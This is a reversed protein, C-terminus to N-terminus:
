GYRPERKKDVLSPVYSGPGVNALDRDKRPENELFLIPLNVRYLAQM